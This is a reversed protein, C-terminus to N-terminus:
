KEVAQNDEREEIKDEIRELTSNPLVLEKFYPVYKKSDPKEGPVTHGTASLMKLVDDYRCSPSATIELTQPGLKNAVAIGQFRADIARLLEADIQATKFTMGRFVIKNIKGDQDAHIQLPMPFAPEDEPAIMKLEPMSLRFEGRDVFDDKETRANLVLRVDQIGSQNAARLLKELSGWTVDKDAWLSLAIKEPKTKHQEAFVKIASPLEKQFGELPIIKAGIFAVIKKAKAEKESDDPHFGINVRYRPAVDDRAPAYIGRLMSPIRLPVGEVGVGTAKWTKNEQKVIKIDWAPLSFEQIQWKGDLLRAQYHVNATFIDPMRIKAVGTAHNDKIECTLDKIATRPVATMRTSPLLYLGKFIAAPPPPIQSDYSFDHNVKETSEDLQYPHMFFCLVMSLPHSPFEKLQPPSDSAAIKAMSEAEFSASEFISDRIAELTEKSVATKNETNATKPEEGLVPLCTLFSALLVFNCVRCSLFAAM